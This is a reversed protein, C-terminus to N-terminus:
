PLKRLSLLLCGNRLEQQLVEYRGEPLKVHREFRGLPIELRHVSASRCEPPLSREGTVSLLGQDLRVRVREPEVGPLAVLIWVQSETAFIDAPPEWTPRSYPSRKVEFLHRQLREAREIMDWAREWMWSYPDQNAMACLMMSRVVLKAPTGEGATALGQGAVAGAAAVETV